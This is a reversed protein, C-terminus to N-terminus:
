ESEDSPAGADGPMAATAEQLATAEPTTIAAEDKSRRLLRQQRERAEPECRGSTTNCVWGTNCAAWCGDTAQRYVATAALATAGFILASPGQPVGGVRCALGFGVLAGTVGLFLLARKM